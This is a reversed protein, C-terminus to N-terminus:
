SWRSGARGSASSRPQVEQPPTCRNLALVGNSFCPSVLSAANRMSAELRQLAGGASENEMAVSQSPAVLDALVRTGDHPMSAWAHESGGLQLGRAALADRPALKRMEHRSVREKARVYRVCMASEPSKPGPESPLGHRPKIDGISEPQPTRRRTRSGAWRFEQRRHVCLHRDRRRARACVRLM